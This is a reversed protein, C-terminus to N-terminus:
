GSKDSFLQKGFSYALQWAADNGSPLMLAFLLERITFQDGPALGASTGQVWAADQEVQVVTFLSLVGRDVLRLCTSVTMVKTLSAVEQRAVENRGFLKQHTRPCFVVWSLASLAPMPREAAKQMRSEKLKQQALDSTVRRMPRACPVEPTSPSPNLKGTEDIKAPVKRIM